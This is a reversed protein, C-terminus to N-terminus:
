KSIQLSRYHQRFIEVILGLVAYTVVNAVVVTSLGVPLDPYLVTVAGDIPCSLGALAYVIPPVPIAKDANAFYFGWSVSVLFGVSGWMAIRFIAGNRMLTNVM